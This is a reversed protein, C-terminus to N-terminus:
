KLHKIRINKVQVTRPPGTHVQLALIGSQPRRAEDLDTVDATVRGNIIHTVRNGRAIIVYDNWEGPKIHSQIEETKGLSGVVDVKAKNKDAPDPKVQTMQGRLALIGRGREEYLIGSYTPGAEFDAQYGGVIFKAPDLLKSRYQVGSNGGVIKYSFRLEFDETKGDKWVLFTNEKLTEKDTTKGTIAGEQVSWIQPLGEWGSLDKGNFLSVFGEEHHDALSLQSLLVVGALSQIWFKKM